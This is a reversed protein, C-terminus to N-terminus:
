KPPKQGMMGMMQQFMGGNGEFEEMMIETVVSELQEHADNVAVATLDEIMPLKTELLPDIDLKHLKGHGNLTAKVM